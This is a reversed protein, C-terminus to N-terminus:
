NPYNHNTYFIYCMKHLGLNNYVNQTLLLRSLESIPLASNKFFFFETDPLSNRYNIVANIKILKFRRQLIPISNSDVSYQNSIDKNHKFLNGLDNYIDRIELNFKENFDSVIIM